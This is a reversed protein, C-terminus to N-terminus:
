LSSTLPCQGPLIMEFLKQSVSQQLLQDSAEIRIEALFSDWLGPLKSLRVQHFIRWVAGREATSSRYTVSTHLISRLVTTLESSFADFATIEAEGKVIRELISKGLEKLSDIRSSTMQLEKDELVACLACRVLGSAM